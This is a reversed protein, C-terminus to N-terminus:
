RSLMADIRIVLVGGPSAGTEIRSAHIPISSGKSRSL